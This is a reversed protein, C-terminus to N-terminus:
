ITGGFERPAKCKFCETRSAYNHVGCGYRTCLWDGSKWGPPMAGESVMINGAYASAIYENKLAGCRYCTMRSAYNHAGCNMGTCYWDGALAEPRVNYLYTSVDPGGFKPYGCRQCTERKKFNQHQCAGCLWDGASWNMM